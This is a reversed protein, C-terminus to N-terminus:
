KLRMKCLIISTEGDQSRLKKKHGEIHLIESMRRIFEMSTKRIGNVIFIEGGDKLYTQFLNLIPQFSHEQYSIESGVIYDFTGKIKPKHWDLQEVKLGPLKNLLANAGAFRLADPNYDTMTVRHGFAAAVIGVVGLGCGIELFRKEPEVELGALYDALVFSAEWIKAWLPFNNLMDDQNIFGDLSDPVFFSFDRNRIKLRITDTKYQKKFSTLKPILNKNQATKTM